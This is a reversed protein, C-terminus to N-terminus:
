DEEPAATGGAETAPPLSAAHFRLRDIAAVEITTNLARALAGTTLARDWCASRDCLYAGRGNRKGTPDLEVAGETTRV